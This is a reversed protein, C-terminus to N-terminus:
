AALYKVKFLYMIYFYMCSCICVYVYIEYLNGLLETGPTMPIMSPTPPEILPQGPTVPQNLVDGVDSFHDYDISM